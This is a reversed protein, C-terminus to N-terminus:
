ILTLHLQETISIGLIIYMCSDHVSERLSIPLPTFETQLDLIFRVANGDCMDVGAVRGSAV